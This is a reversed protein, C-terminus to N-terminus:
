EQALMTTMTATFSVTVEWNIFPVDTKYGTLVFGNSKVCFLRRERNFHLGVDVVVDASNLELSHCASL